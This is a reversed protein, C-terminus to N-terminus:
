YLYNAKKITQMTALEYAKVLTKCDAYKDDGYWITVFDDGFNDKVILMGSEEGDSFTFEVNCYSWKLGNPTISWKYGNLNSKEIGAKIAARYERKM